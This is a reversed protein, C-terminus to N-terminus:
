ISSVNISINNDPHISVSCLNLECFAHGWLQAKLWINKEYIDRYARCISWVVYGTHYRLSRDKIKLPYIMANVPKKFPWDITVNLRGYSNIYQSPLSQEIIMRSGRVNFGRILQFNEFTPELESIAKIQKEVNFFSLIDTSAQKKHAFVIDTNKISFEPTSLKFTFPDVRMEPTWSIEKNETDTKTEM